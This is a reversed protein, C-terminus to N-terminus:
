SNIKSIYVVYLIYKDSRAMDGASGEKKNEISKWNIFEKIMKAEAKEIISKHKSWTIVEIRKYKAPHQSLREYETLGSKGIKFHSSRLAISRIRKKIEFDTM